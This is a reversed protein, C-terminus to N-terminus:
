DWHRRVDRRRLCGEKLWKNRLTQPVEVWGVPYGHWEGAGHQQACYAKGEYVAYRKDHVLESDTLLRVAIAQDFNKPCLTGRRGRQWPEKHKPNGEYRVRASGNAKTM